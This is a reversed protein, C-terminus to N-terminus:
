GVSEAFAIAVRKCDDLTKCEFGVPISQDEEPHEALYEDTFGSTTPLSGKEAIYGIGFGYIARHSWGFWKKDRESFGICCVNHNGGREPAIGRKVILNLVDNDAGIYGGDIASYHIWRGRDLGGLRRLVELKNDDNIALLREFVPDSYDNELRVEFRSVHTGRDEETLVIKRPFDEPYPVKGKPCDIAQLEDYLGKADCAICRWIQKDAAEVAVGAATPTGVVELSLHDRKEGM